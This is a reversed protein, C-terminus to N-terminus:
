VAGNCVSKEVHHAEQCVSPSVAGGTFRCQIAHLLWDVGSRHSWSARNKFSLGMQLSEQWWKGCPNCDAPIRGELPFGFVRRSVQGKPDLDAARTWRFLLIEPSEWCHGAVLIRQKWVVPIHVAASNSTSNYVLLEAVRLCRRRCRSETVTKWCLWIYQSVTGQKLEDYLGQQQQPSHFGPAIACAQKAVSIWWQVFVSAKGINLQNCLINM